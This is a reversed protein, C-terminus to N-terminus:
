RWRCPVEGWPFAMALPHTARSLRAASRAPHNQFDEIPGDLSPPVADRPAAAEAEPEVASAGLEQGEEAVRAQTREHGSQARAVGIGAPLVPPHDGALQM